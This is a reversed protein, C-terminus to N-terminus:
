TRPPKRPLRPAREPVSATLESSQVPPVPAAFTLQNVTTLAVAHCCAACLGCQHAPAQVSGPASAGEEAHAHPVAGDPLLAHGDQTLEGSVGKADEHAHLVAGPAGCFLQTAAAFAQLPVALVLLWFLLLRLRSM